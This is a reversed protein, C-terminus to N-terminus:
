QRKDYSIRFNGTLDSGQDDDIMIREKIHGENEHGAKKGYDKGMTIQFVPLYILIFEIYKKEQCHQSCHHKDAAAMESREEESEFYQADAEICKYGVRLTGYAM